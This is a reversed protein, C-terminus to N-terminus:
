PHQGGLPVQIEKFNWNDGSKHSSVASLGPLFPLKPTLERADCECDVGKRGWNGGDETVVGGGLKWSNGLPLNAVSCSKM